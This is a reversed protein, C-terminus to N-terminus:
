SLTLTNAPSQEKQLSSLLIQKKAKEMTRLGGKNKPKHSWEEDEFGAIAPRTKTM